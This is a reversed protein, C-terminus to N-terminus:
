EQTRLKDWAKFLFFGGLLTVITAVAAAGTREYIWFGVAFLAGYVTICGVFMCLLELPLQSKVEPMDVGEAEAQQVIHTWGPGGPQIHRYFKVLTEMKTTPTFYASVIWVITTLAAGIITKH